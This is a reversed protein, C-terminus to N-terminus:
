EGAKEKENVELGDKMSQMKREATVENGRESM